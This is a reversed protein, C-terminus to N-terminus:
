LPEEGASTEYLAAVLDNKTPDLILCRVSQGKIRVPVSREVCYDQEAFEDLLTKAKFSFEQRRGTLDRQWTSLVPQFFIALNGGYTRLVDRVMGRSRLDQIAELFQITPQEHLVQNFNEQAHEVVFQFFERDDKKILADYTGVVLAYGISTRDDLKQRLFNRMKHVADVVEKKKEQFRKVVVPIIGSMEGMKANLTLYGRGDRDRPLRINLCRQMLAQDNPTDQGSVLMRGRIVGGRVGFHTRVGKLAMQGDYASRFFGEKEKAKDTGSNRYEDIWYPLSSFYAAGRQMGVLSGTWYSYGDTNLGAMATLWRCLTSKGSQAQGSIFLTPFVNNYMQSLWQSVLTSIVWSCALRVGQFGDFNAEIEDMLAGPDMDRGALRPIESRADEGGQQLHVAQYGSLGRWVIGRDDTEVRTGDALLGGNEFLYIQPKQIWGIHDPQYVRRGIERATEFALIQELDKQNGTFDFEGAILCKRRFAVYHTLDEGNLSVREQREGLTNELSVERTCKEEADFMNNEIKLVFNSVPIQTDGRDVWYRRGSPNVKWPTTAFQYKREILIRADQPLTHLYDRPDLREQVVHDFQFKTKGSALASDVDVKGESMWEAPLTAVTAEIGDFELKRAMLYAYYQTDWRRWFEAKYLPYQPDDKIENDFIVCVSKVEASRLLELFAPYNKGAVASVGAVGVASYEWQWAAAAKFESETLIVFSKLPSPLYSPIGVGAFADKHPRCYILYSPSNWRYYPILIRPQTLKSSVQGAVSIGAGELDADTFDKFWDLDIEPGASKFGLHEITEDSFGRVSRLHNRDAASLHLHAMLTQYIEAYATADRRNDM